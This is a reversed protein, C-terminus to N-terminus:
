KPADRGTLGCVRPAATGCEPCVGSANGILSYGCELCEGHAARLPKLWLRHFFSMWAWIGLLLIVAWVAAIEFLATETTAFRLLLKLLFADGVCVIAIAFLPLFRHWWKIM